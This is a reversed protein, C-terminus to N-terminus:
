NRPVLDQVARQEFEQARQVDGLARWAAARGQDAQFSLSHAGTEALLDPPACAIAQDFAHLALKPQQTDLYLRALKIWELPQPMTSLSIGQRQAQITEPIRADHKYVTALSFWFLPLNPQIALAERYQKEAEVYNGKTYAITGRLWPVFSSDPFVQSANEAASLAESNRGLAALAAASDAWANFRLADSGAVASVPLPATACDLHVRRLLQETHPTRRVFVGAEQDLYVPQWNTSNCFKRVQGLAADFRNLPLLIANIHYREAEAQWLDSDPPAQLLQLQHVFARPGFPIARGDIYNRRQPGLRWAVYGGQIYTNFIEGPINEREIFDAAREPFWWSLGAGYTALSMDHIKAADAARVLAFLAIVAAAAVAILSRARVNTLRIGLRKIEPSLIAGAVIVVVCATLAGMRVHQIGAYAACLLLLAVGFQRRLVAVLIAVAAVILLLYFPENNQLSFSHSIATWNLPVRGWEPIWASHAAMARNQRLVAAYIGWGWPNILTALVTAGFWPASHRLREWGRHRQAGGLLIDLLDMGAFAAILGLGAVFGLHLNVWAIMLLPLLWLRAQGARYNQWLLSLYAAFFLLTFIEARPASRQAILPVSLIAFAASLATGRRLLLAVTGCCVAAGLWSLLVYGGLLYAAYFVLGSGVPYIWPSGAATYSFVDVSFVQHHQAVWRGTALQWFLDPDSITRLGSLFAYVLAIAALFLFLRRELPTASPSIPDIAPVAAGPNTGRSQLELQGM